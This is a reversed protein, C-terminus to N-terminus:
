ILGCFEYADKKGDDINMQIRKAGTLATKLDAAFKGMQGRKSVRYWDGQKNITVDAYACSIRTEGNMSDMSKIRANM